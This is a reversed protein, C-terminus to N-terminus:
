PELVVKGSTKRNAIAEHAKAAEALPFRDDAEIRLKGSAAWGLLEPLARGVKEIDEYLSYGRITVGSFILSMFTQSDLSGGGSAQGGFVLWYAGKGLAHAGEGGADGQSDLYIDVGKGDTADMVQKAWGPQNYDFVADAGYDRVKQHKSPSALGIVKGAGKLGAIQVALSGVGGAASPILVTGGEKLQGTELLFYATLGQILLATAPAFDLSDPLPVVMESPAVAHSAYGGGQVMAMVRQGLSFNTVGEGLASVVGAVEFGPRYPVNPVPPYHGQRAMLDAFNIGSAKAEILLQGAQPSPTAEEHLKLQEPGGFTDVQIFQMIHKTNL